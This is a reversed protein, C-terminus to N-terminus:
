SATSASAFTTSETVAAPIRLSASCMASASSATASGPSLTNMGGRGPTSKSRANKPATAAPMIATGSGFIGFILDFFSSRMSPTTSSQVGLTTM